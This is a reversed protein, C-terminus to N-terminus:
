LRISALVRLRAFLTFEHSQATAEGCDVVDLSPPGLLLQSKETISEVSFLTLSVLYHLWGDRLLAPKIRRDRASTETAANRRVDETSSRAAPPM